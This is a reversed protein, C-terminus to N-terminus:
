HELVGMLGGTEYSRDTQRSKAYRTKMTFFPSGLLQALARKSGPRRNVISRSTTSRHFFSRSTSRIQTYLEIHGVWYQDPKESLKDGGVTDTGSISSMASEVPPQSLCHRSVCLVVAFIRPRGLLTETRAFRQGVSGCDEENSRRAALSGVWFAGM